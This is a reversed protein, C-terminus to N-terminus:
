AGYPRPLPDSDNTVGITQANRTQRCLGEGRTQDLLKLQRDTPPTLTTAAMM